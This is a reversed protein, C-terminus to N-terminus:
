YLEAVLNKVTQILQQADAGNFAAVIKNNYIFKFSPVSQIQFHTAVDSLKDIDIKYFLVNSYENSLSELLPYIRKCPGCWTATFDLVIITNEMEMCTNQCEDLSTMERVPM